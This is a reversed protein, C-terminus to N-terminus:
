FYFRPGGLEVQMKMNLIAPFESRITSALGPNCVVIRRFWRPSVRDPVLVEAAKKRRALEKDGEDERYWSRARIVDWDLMGLYNLDHYITSADDAVNGNSFHVGDEALIAGDVCIYAIEDQACPGQFKILSLMPSRPSFFLPVYDNANRDGCISCVRIRSRRLRIDKDAISIYNLHMPVVHNYSLIGHELISGLNRWHTIHFLESLKLRHILNTKRAKEDMFKGEGRGLHSIERRDILSAAPTNLRSVLQSFRTLMPWM